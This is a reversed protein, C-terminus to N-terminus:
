MSTSESIKLLSLVIKNINNYFFVNFKIKNVSIELNTINYYNIPVYM